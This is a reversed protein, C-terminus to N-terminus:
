QDEIRFEVANPILGPNEQAYALGLLFLAQQRSHAAVEYTSRQGNATVLFNYSRYSRHTRPTM